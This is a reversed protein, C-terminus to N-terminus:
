RKKKKCTLFLSSFHLTTISFDLAYSLHWIQNEGQRYYLENQLLTPNNFQKFVLEHKFSYLHEPNHLNHIKKKMSM